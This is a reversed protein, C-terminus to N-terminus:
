GNAWDDMPTEAAKWPISLSELHNIRSAAVIM